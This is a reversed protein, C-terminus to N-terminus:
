KFVEQVGNWNILEPDKWSKSLNQRTEDDEFSAIRSAMPSMISASRTYYAKEAPILKEPNNFDIVLWHSVQETTLNEEKSYSLLCNIDDFKFAKGKTTVLEAGFKPDMIVMKCYDCADHGFQIPVPQASCSVLMGALAIFLINNKM